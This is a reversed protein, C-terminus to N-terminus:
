NDIQLNSNKYIIMYRIFTQFKNSDTSVSLLKFKLQLYAYKERLKSWEGFIHFALIFFLVSAIIEKHKIPILIMSCAFFQVIYSFFELFFFIQRYHHSIEMAHNCLKKFTNLNEYDIFDPSLEDSAIKNQENKFYDINQINISRQVEIVEGESKNLNPFDARLFRQLIIKPQYKKFEDFLEKM